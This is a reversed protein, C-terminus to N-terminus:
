SSAMVTRTVNAKANEFNKWTKFKCLIDNASSNDVVGMLGSLSLLQKDSMKIGIFKEYEELTRVKGLGYPPIITVDEKSIKLLKQLRKYGEAEMQKRQRHTENNNDNFQQWFVPRIREWMHYMVMKTPSYFDYGFTWLRAAMSIEEGLFVYDCYPDFPVEHIMSSSAFSLCGAWFLGLIPVNPKRVFSPGEIEVLGTKDNFKKFRLYSGNANDYNMPPFTRHHPKFDDPYTTLIPKPSWQLCTKWEDVLTKDWNPTFLMHSDTVLYFKEDRFLQTEILHRAYMPGKAESADMRIVRIQNSFDGIGASSLRRYAEMVDEDVGTYNQQCIGVFIRFPCYAKQFLDYITEACQPDRYSAISVFITEHIVSQCRQDINKRLQQKRYDEIWTWIYYIAIAMLVVVITTSINPTFLGLINEKIFEM